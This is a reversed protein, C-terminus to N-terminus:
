RASQCCAGAKMTRDHTGKAAGREARRCVRTCGCRIWHRRYQGTLAGASRKVTQGANMHAALHQAARHHPVDPAGGHALAAHLQGREADVGAGAAGAPAVAEQVEEFLRAQWAIPSSTPKHEPCASCIPAPALPIEATTIMPFEAHTTINPTLKVVSQARHSYTHPQWVWSM